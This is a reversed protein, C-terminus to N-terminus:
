GALLRVGSRQLVHGTNCEYVQHAARAVDRRVADVVSVLVDRVARRPPLGDRVNEGKLSQIQDHGIRAIHDQLKEVM